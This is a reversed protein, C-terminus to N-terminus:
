NEGWIEAVQSDVLQFIVIVFLVILIFAATASDELDTAGFGISLKMWGGEWQCNEQASSSSHWSSWNSWNM